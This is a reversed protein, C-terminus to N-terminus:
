SVRLLRQPSSGPVRMLLGRAELDLKVTTAYWMISAGKFADRPLKKAVLRSLSAFAVGDGSTPVVALIAAKMAEYRVADIRPAQKGKGPNKLAITTTKM